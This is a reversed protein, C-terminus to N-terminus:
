MFIISWIECYGEKPRGAQWRIGCLEEDREVDVLEVESIVEPM